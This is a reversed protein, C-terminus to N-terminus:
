FLLIGLTLAIGVVVLIMGRRFTRTNPKFMWLSSVALFLFVFGFVLNFWHTANSSIAKHFNIFKNFPFIIDKSTYVTAGTVKNYTGNQFTIVDGETKTVKVERMRLERGLDGVELNPKLQREITVERKLFDTNRYILAIGSLVYVVVLGFAVYGIDRHLSRMYYNISKSKKPEMLDVKSAIKIQVNKCFM